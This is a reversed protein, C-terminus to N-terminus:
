KTEKKVVVKRFMGPNEEVHRILSTTLKKGAGSEEIRQILDFASILSFRKVYHERTCAAGYECAKSNPMNFRHHLHTCCLARGGEGTVTPPAQRAVHTTSTPTTPAAIAHGQSKGASTPTARTAAATTPPDPLQLRPLDNAVFHKAMSLGEHTSAVKQLLSLLITIRETIFACVAVTGFLPTAKPPKRVTTRLLTWLEAFWGNIVDLLMLDLVDHLPNTIDDFYNCIPAFIGDYATSSTIVLFDSVGRICVGLQNRFATTHLTSHAHSVPFASPGGNHFDLISLDSYTMREWNGTLAREFVQPNRFVRADNMRAALRGASRFHEEDLTFQVHPAAKAKLIELYTAPSLDYETTLRLVDYKEEPAVRSIFQCTQRRRQAHTGDGHLDWIRGDLDTITKHKAASATTNDATYVVNQAVLSPSLQSSEGATTTSAAATQNQHNGINAKFRKVAAQPQDVADLAGEWGGTPETPILDRFAQPATSRVILFYNPCVITIGGDACGRIFNSITSQESESLSAMARKSGVVGLLTMNITSGVAHNHDEADRGKKWYALVPQTAFYDGNLIADTPKAAILTIAVDQDSLDDGEIRTTCSDAFFFGPTQLGQRKSSYGSAEDFRAQVQQKHGDIIRSSAIAGTAQQQAIEDFM